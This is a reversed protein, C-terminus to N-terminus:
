ESGRAAMARDIAEDYAVPDRAAQHSIPVGDAQRVFRYRAADRLAAVTDPHREITDAEPNVLKNRPDLMVACGWVVRLLSGRDLIDFLHRLAQGCQRDDDRDFPEDDEDEARKTLAAPMTPAWRQTLSELAGVLEMAMKLDDESAKAMKM